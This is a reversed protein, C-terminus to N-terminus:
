REASHDPAHASDGPARPLIVSAQPGRTSCVPPPPCSGLATTGDLLGAIVEPTVNYNTVERRQQPTLAAALASQTPRDLGGAIEFHTAEDRTSGRTVLVTWAGGRGSNLGTRRSIRRLVQAGPPINARQLVQCAIDLTPYRVQRMRGQSDIYALRYVVDHGSQVTDGQPGEPEGAYPQWSEGFLRAEVAYVAANGYHRELAMVANGAATADHAYCQVAGTGIHVVRFGAAEAWQTAWREAQHLAQFTGPPQYCDEVGRFVCSPSHALERPEGRHLHAGTPAM